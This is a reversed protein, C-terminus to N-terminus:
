VYPSQGVRLYYSMQEERTPERLHLTDFADNWSRMINRDLCTVRKPSKLTNSVLRLTNEIGKLKWTPTIRAEENLTIRFEKVADQSYIEMAQFIAQFVDEDFERKHEPLQKLIEWFIKEKNEM